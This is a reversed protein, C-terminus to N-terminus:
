DLVAYSMQQSVDDDDDDACKSTLMNYYLCKSISANCCDMDTNLM